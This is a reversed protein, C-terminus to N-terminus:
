KKTVLAVVYCVAGAIVAYFGIGVFKFIHSFDNMDILILVVGVIACILSVLRLIAPGTFCKILGIIGGALVLIASLKSMFSANGTIHNFLSANATAIGLNVSIFPLFAGAVILISGVLYLISINSKKAM